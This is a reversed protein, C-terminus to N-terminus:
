KQLEFVRNPEEVSVPFKVDRQSTETTEIKVIEGPLKFKNKRRNDVRMKKYKQCIKTAALQANKGPQLAAIDELTEITDIRDIDGTNFPEELVVNPVTYQRKRAAKRYKDVIKKVTIKTALNSKKLDTSDIESRIFHSTDAPINIDNPKKPPVYIYNISKSERHRPLRCSKAM